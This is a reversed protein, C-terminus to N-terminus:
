DFAKGEYVSADKLDRHAATEVMNRVIFRKISKDQVLSYFLQAHRSFLSQSPYAAHFLCVALCVCSAVLVFLAVLPWDQESAELRGLEM